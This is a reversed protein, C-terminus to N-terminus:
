CLCNETYPCLILLSICRGGRGEGWLIEDWRGASKKAEYFRILETKQQLVEEEDPLWEPLSADSPQWDESSFPPSWESNNCNDPKWAGSASYYAAGGEKSWGLYRAVM